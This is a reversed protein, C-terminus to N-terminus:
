EEGGPVEGTDAKDKKRKRFEVKWEGPNEGPVLIPEDKNERQKNSM